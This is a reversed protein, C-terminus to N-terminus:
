IKMLILSQPRTCTRWRRPEVSSIFFIVVRAIKGTFKEGGGYISRGRISDFRIKGRSRSSLLSLFLDYNCHQIPPARRYPSRLTDPDNFALPNALRPQRPPYYRAFRKALERISKAVASCCGTEHYLRPPFRRQRTDDLSITNNRRQICRNKVSCIRRTVISRFGRHFRYVYICIYIDRIWRNRRTEPRRDFSVDRNLRKFENNLRFLLFLPPPIRRAM